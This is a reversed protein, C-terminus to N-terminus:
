GCDRTKLIGSEYFQMANADAEIAIAVPGQAVARQLATESNPIVIGYDIIRGYRKQCKNAECHRNTKGKFKYDRAACLGEKDIIYDYGEPLNGGICGENVGDHDCDLLEQISLEVVKQENKIAWRSETADAVAFAWCGGCYLQDKVRSMYKPAWDVARPLLSKKGKSLFIEHNTNNSHKPHRPNTQDTLKMPNFFKKFEKRTMDAYKNIGMKFSEDPKLNHENIYRMNDQFIKFRQQKEFDNPYQKNYKDTFQQFQAHFQMNPKSKLMCILIAIILIIKM